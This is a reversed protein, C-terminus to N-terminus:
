LKKMFHITKKEFGLKQYFDHSTTNNTFSDLVINDCDKAKGEMEINGMLLQAIGQNRSNDRVYLSSVQIYKGCYLMAGIHFAAMGIVEDQENQAILLNYRSTKVTISLYYEIEETSLNAYKERFIPVFELIDSLKSYKTIKIM